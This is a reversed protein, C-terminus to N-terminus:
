PIWPPFWFAQSGAQASGARVSSAMVARLIHRSSAAVSDLV